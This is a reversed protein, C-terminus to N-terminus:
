HSTEFRYGIGRVTTIYQPNDSTDGMKERLRCVYVDIM